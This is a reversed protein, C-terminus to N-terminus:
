GQVPCGMQPGDRDLGHVDEGGDSPTWGDEVILEALRLRAKPTLAANAHSM